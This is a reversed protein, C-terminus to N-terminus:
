PLVLILFVSKMALYLVAIALERNQKLHTHTM